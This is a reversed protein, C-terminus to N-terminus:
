FPPTPLVVVATLRAALRAAVLLFTRRISRSGWPLAVVAAPMLSSFGFVKYSTKKSFTEMNKKNKLTNKVYKEGLVKKRNKLGKTYNKKDIM